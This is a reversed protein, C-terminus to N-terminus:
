DPKAPGSGTQPPTQKEHSRSLITEIKTTFYGPQPAPIMMEAPAPPPPPCAPPLSACGSSLMLLAASLPWATKRSHM